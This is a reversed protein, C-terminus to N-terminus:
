RIYSILEHGTGGDGSYGVSLRDDGAEPEAPVDDEPLMDGPALADYGAEAFASGVRGYSLDHRQWRGGYAAYNPDDPGCCVACGLSATVLSLLALSFLRRVM